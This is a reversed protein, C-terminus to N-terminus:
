TLSETNIQTRIGAIRPLTCEIESDCMKNTLFHTCIDIQNSKQSSFNLVIEITSLKLIKGFHQKILHNITFLITYLGRRFDM